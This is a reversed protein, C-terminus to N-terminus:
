EVEEDHEHAKRQEQEIIGREYHHKAGDLQQEVLDDDDLIEDHKDIHQVQEVEDVEDNRLM